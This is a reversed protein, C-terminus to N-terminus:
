SSEPPHIGSAVWFRRATQAIQNNLRLAVVTARGHATLGMIQTGDESWQFHKQWRDCRPNFIRTQRGTQPDRARSTGGKFENCFPCSLCLNEFETAGGKAQPIIHDLHFTALTMEQRTQCYECRDQAAQVVRTRLKQPIGPM